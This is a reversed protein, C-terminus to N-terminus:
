RRGRKGGVTAAARHREVARHVALEGLMSAQAAEALTLVGPRSYWLVATPESSVTEALLRDLKGQERRATERARKARAAQAVLQERADDAYAERIAADDDEAAPGAPPTQPKSM